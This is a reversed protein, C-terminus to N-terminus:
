FKGLFLDFTHNIYVTEPLVIFIPAINRVPYLKFIKIKKKEGMIM